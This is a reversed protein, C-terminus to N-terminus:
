EAQWPLRDATRRYRMKLAFLNAGNSIFFAEGTGDIVTPRSVLGHGPVFRSIPAGSEADVVTFAGESEGYILYGKYLVPQTAIGRQVEFTRMVKGSRKDVAHIKGSVTAYYLREAFRERGLTVPTYSGDDVSWNVEGTELKLSYLAADFSAAYVDRGDVVPTADVDRFRTGRGLKREWLLGGDRKRLSVLFGDSFGVLLSEGAIVPKTSARISLNGTVQRNYLWLQKGTEADLAYVVDAGSVFYVIGNELTPAALGEARVPFTWLVKGTAVTVCYFFGDSAGFYLKDGAVQAGGEVGNELDLRWIMSGTRRDYALIGDIANAQIVMKDLVIPSFRNMRRFGIFDQGTTPRVWHSEVVFKRDQRSSQLSTCSALTLIALTTLIAHATTTM